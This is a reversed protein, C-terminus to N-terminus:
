VLLRPPRGECIMDPRRWGQLEACDLCRATDSGDRDIYEVTCLSCLRRKRKKTYAEITSESTVSLGDKHIDVTAFQCNVDECIRLCIYCTRSGCEDCDSYGDLVARTTPRRSCIHCPRLLLAAIPKPSSDDHLPSKNTKSWYHSVPSARKRRLRKPSSQPIIEMHFSDLCSSAQGDAHSFAVNGPLDHNVKRKRPNPSLEIEPSTM